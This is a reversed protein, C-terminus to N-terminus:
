EGANERRGFRRETFRPVAGAELFDAIEAAPGAPAVLLGDAHLRKFMGVWPYVQEETARTEAQMPTDVTGPEYSLVAVDAPVRTLRDPAAVEAAFVMSAMRLAAKTCGYASLGPFAIVAAGSSVNVVRVVADAPVHAIVRGMLWVPAAVNLAFMRTVDAPPVQEVPGLLGASAANNVLGVREWRPEALREALQRGIAAEAAAPDALDVVLHDYRADLVPSQRRALGLVYWGRALLDAALAAGLGSTTGTVIALRDSPM